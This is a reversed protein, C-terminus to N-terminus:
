NTRCIRQYYVRVIEPREAHNCCARRARSVASNGVFPLVTVPGSTREILVFSFSRSAYQWSCLCMPMVLTCGGHPM